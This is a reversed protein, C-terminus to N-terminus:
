MVFVIIYRFIKLGIVKPSWSELITWFFSLKTLKTYILYQISTDVQTRSCSRGSVRLSSGEPGRPLFGRYGTWERGYRSQGLYNFRSNKASKICLFHFYLINKDLKFGTSYILKNSNILYFIYPNTKFLICNM